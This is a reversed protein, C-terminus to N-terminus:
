PGTSPAPGTWPSGSDASGRGALRAVARHIEVEDMEDRWAPDTMRHMLMANRAWRADGESGNLLDPWPMERDLQRQRARWWMRILRWLGM